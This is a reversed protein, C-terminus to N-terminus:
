SRSSGDECTEMNTEPNVVGEVIELLTSDPAVVVVEGTKLIRIEMDLSDDHTNSM